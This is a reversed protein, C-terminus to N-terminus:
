PIVRTTGGLLVEISKTIAAKQFGITLNVSSTGRDGFCVTWATSTLQVTSPLDLRTEATWTTAACSAASESVVRTSTTPRVRRASTTAMARARSQAVFGEFMAMGDQLSGQSPNFYMSAAGIFIGVVALVLLLEVISM